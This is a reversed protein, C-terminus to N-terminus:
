LTALFNVLDQKEQTTLGIEFRQDYFDVVDMLTGASGNHFYPSRAELGRMIPGKFKGIDACNGTILARGPDTVHFDQGALPGATCHLTFIPLGAIDLAPPGPNADAIGINLPLSVSHNGVGPTDHCTGCTGDIKDKGLLDNLGAVGTITIPKTNFVIEGRAVSLRHETEDDDSPLTEWSRYLNFIQPSFDTGCPNHGLPDNIGVFFAAAMQQIAMPGGTQRVELPACEIPDSGPVPATVTVTTPFPLLLHAERDYIQATFLGTEFAVVEQQQEPTLGVGRAQAHGLTADLAQHALSPERGDWMIASLFNLNTAPLPRRYVSVTGSTPSTLGTVPNTNCNYPDSVATVEFETAPPMALGIRILGKSTLLQYAARKDALTSVKDSPCTAGDVRRFLPDSGHSRAFRARASAASITWGTQPQHCTFCTRGNTGLNQFFPNSRTRTAGNIQDTEVIGAPDNFDQSQPIIHPAAQSGHDVDAFIQMRQAHAIAAAAWAISQVTDRESQAAAPRPAALALACGVATLLATLRKVAEAHLM